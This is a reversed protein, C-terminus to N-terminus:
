GVKQKKSGTPTKKSTIESSKVKNEVWKIYKTTDKKYDLYAGFASRLDQVEYMMNALVNQLESVKQAIENITPKNYKKQKM